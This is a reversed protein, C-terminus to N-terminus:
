EHSLMRHVGELGVPGKPPLTSPTYAWIVTKLIFFVFKHNISLPAKNFTLCERKGGVSGWSSVSSGQKDTYRAFNMNLLYSIQSQDTNIELIHYCHLLCRNFTILLGPM